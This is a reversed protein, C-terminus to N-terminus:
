LGQFALSITTLDFEEDQTKFDETKPRLRLRALFFQANLGQSLDRAKGRDWLPSERRVGLTAAGGPCAVVGHGQAFAMTSDSWSHNGDPLEM